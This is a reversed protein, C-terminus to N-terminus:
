KKDNSLEGCLNMADQIYKQLVETSNLARFRPPPAHLVEASDEFVDLGHISGRLERGTSRRHADIIAPGPKITYRGFGCDVGLGNIAGAQIFASRLRQGNERAEDESAYGYGRVIFWDAQDLTATQAGLVVPPPLGAISLEVATWRPAPTQPPRSVATLMRFRLQFRFSMSTQRAAGIRFGPM